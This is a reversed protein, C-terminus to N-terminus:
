SQAGRADRAPKLGDYLARAIRLGLAGTRPRTTIDISGLDVSPVAFGDSLPLGHVRVLRMLEARLARSVAEGDHPGVPLGDLVLRDIRIHVTM